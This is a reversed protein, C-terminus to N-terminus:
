HNTSILNLEPRHLCWSVQAPLHPRSTNEYTSLSPWCSETQLLVTNSLGPETSDTSQPVHLLVAEGSIGTRTPFLLGQPTASADKRCGEELSPGPRGEFRLTWCGGSDAREASLGNRHQSSKRMQLSIAAGRELMVSYRFLFM